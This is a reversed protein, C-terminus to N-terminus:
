SAFAHRRDKFSPLPDPIFPEPSLANITIRLQDMALCRAEDFPMREAGVDRILELVRFRCAAGVDFPVDLYFVSDEILDAIGHLIQM